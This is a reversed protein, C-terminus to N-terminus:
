WRYIVGAAVAGREIFSVPSGTDLLANLCNTERRDKNIHFTVSVRQVVAVDEEESAAAEEENWSDIAAAVRRPGRNAAPANARTPCERSIHGSKLCTYCAGKPRKDIPCTSQYHGLSNCNYCRIKTM